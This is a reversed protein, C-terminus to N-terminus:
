AYLPFVRGDAVGFISEAAEPPQLSLGTFSGFAPLVVGQPRQYFCPIRMNQRALGRLLIGPHLHGSWEFCRDTQPNDGEWTPEHRFVFPGLSWQGSVVQLGLRGYVDDALYEHNGKVLMWEISPYTQILEGLLRWERNFSSHFLDGLFLVRKPQETQVLKSLRNVDKASVQGPVALGHRRFHGSKGLHVDAVM